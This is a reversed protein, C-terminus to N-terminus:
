MIVPPTGALWTTLYKVFQDVQPDDGNDAEVVWGAIPQNNGGTCNRSAEVWTNTSQDLGEGGRGYTTTARVIKNTLCLDPAPLRSNQAVPIPFIRIGTIAGATTNTFSCGVTLEGNLNKTNATTQFDELHPYDIIDAYPGLANKYVANRLISDVANVLSDACPDTYLQQMYKSTEDYNAGVAVAEPAPVPAPSAITTPGDSSPPTPSDNGSGGDSCGAVGLGIMATAAAVCWVRSAIRRM